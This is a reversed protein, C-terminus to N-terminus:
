GLPNDSRKKAIRKSERKEYAANSPTNEQSFLFKGYLVCGHCGPDCKHKLLRCWEKNDEFTTLHQCGWGSSM